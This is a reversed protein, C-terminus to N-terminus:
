EAAPAAAGDVKVGGGADAPADALTAAPAATAPATSAAEGGGDGGGDGEGEGGGAGATAELQARELFFSNRVIYRFMQLVLSAERKM